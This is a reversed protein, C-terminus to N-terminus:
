IIAAFIPPYVNAISMLQKSNLKKFWLSPSSHIQGKEDFKKFDIEHSQGNIIQKPVFLIFPSFPRLPINRPRM